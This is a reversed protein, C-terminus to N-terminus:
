AGPAILLNPALRQYGQEDVLLDLALSALDDAVAEMHQDKELYLLKLYTRCDDCCEAKVADNAGDVYLYSINGTSACASCKVRVLHWESACVSCVLYRLGQEAGGIRILGAVPPSGCVPCQRADVGPSRGRDGLEFAANALLLQLAAGVFPVHAPDIDSYRGGLVSAANRELEARDKERLTDIVRQTQLPLADRPLADILRVLIPQLGEFGLSDVSLPPLGHARCHEIGADDPLAVETLSGFQLAQAEVLAAAFRLYEGMAHGRALDKLRQARRAFVDATVAHFEPVSPVGGTLATGAM